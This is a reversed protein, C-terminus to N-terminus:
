LKFVAPNRNDTDRFLQQCTDIAYKTYVKEGIKQISVYDVAPAQHQESTSTMSPSHNTKSFMLFKRSFLTQRCPRCFFCRTKAFLLTFSWICYSRQSPSESTTYNLTCTYYLKQTNQIPISPLSHYFLFWPTNSDVLTCYICVTPQTANMMTM